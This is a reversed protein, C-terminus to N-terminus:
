PHVGVGRGRRRAIFGGGSSLLVALPLFMVFSVLVGVAALLDEGTVAAPWFYHALVFYGGNLIVHDVILVLPGPLVAMWLGRHAYSVMLWGGFFAIVMRGANFFVLGGAFSAMLYNLVAATAVCALITAAHHPM